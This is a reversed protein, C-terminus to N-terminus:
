ARDARREFRVMGGGFSARLYNLAAWSEIQERPSRDDAETRKFLTNILIEYYVVHHGDRCVGNAIDDAVSLHGSTWSRGTYWVHWCSICRHISREDVQHTASNASACRPCPEGSSM